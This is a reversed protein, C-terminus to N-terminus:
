KNNEKQELAAEVWGQHWLLRYQQVTYPNAQCDAGARYAAAGREHIELRSHGTCEIHIAYGAFMGAITCVIVFMLDLFSRM